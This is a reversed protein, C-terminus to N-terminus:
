VKEYYVNGNEYRRIAGTNKKTTGCTFVDNGPGIALGYNWNDRGLPYLSSWGGSYYGALGEGMGTYIGGGYGAMSLSAVRTGLPTNTNAPWDYSQSFVGTNRDSWSAGGDGSQMFMCSQDGAVWLSNPNTEDMWLSNYWITLSDSTGTAPRFPTWNQGGNLTKLVYGNGCSIYGRYSGGYYTMKVKLFPTLSDATGSFPNLMQTWTDGSDATRLIIGKYKNKRTTTEDANRYGVIWGNNADVFCVSKFDYSTQSPIKNTQSQWVQETSTPYLKGSRKYIVGADGVAWGTSDDLMTVDRFSGLLGSGDRVWIPEALAICALLVLGLLVTMKKM